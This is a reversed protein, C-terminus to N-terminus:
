AQIKEAEITFGAIVNEAALSWFKFLTAEIADHEVEVTNEVTLTLGARKLQHAAEDWRGFFTTTIITTM